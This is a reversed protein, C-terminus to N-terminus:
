TQRAKGYTLLYDSILSLVPAAYPGDNVSLLEQLDTVNTASFVPLGTETTFKEAASVTDGVNVVEQRDFGVVCGVPTGGQERILDYAEAKSRGTSIVDDVVLVRKGRVPAGVWIGGEGHDKAEKRNYACGVNMGHMRWMASAIEGALQIGKYAPGFVVDYALEESAAVYASTLRSLSKGDYFLGSNFFYPSMRGSKLIRQKDPDPFLELAGIELALELLARSATKM